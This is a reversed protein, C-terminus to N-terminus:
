GKATLLLNIGASQMLLRIKDPDVPKDLFISAGFAQAKAKDQESIYASLFAFIPREAQKTEEYHSQIQSLAELGNRKPM